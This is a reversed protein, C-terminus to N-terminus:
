QTDCIVLTGAGEISFWLRVQIRNREVDLASLQVVWGLHLRVPMVSVAQAPGQCPRGLSTRGQIM